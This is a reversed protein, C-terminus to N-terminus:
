NVAQVWPSKAPPTTSCMKMWSALNARCTKRRMMGREIQRAVVLKLAGAECGVLLGNKLFDDFDSGIHAQKM